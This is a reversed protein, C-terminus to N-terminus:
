IQSRLNLFTLELEKAILPLALSVHPSAGVGIVEAEPYREAMSLCWTATM